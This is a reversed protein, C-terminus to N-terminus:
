GNWDQWKLLGQDLMIALYANLDTQADDYSVEYELTIVRTIENITRQGDILAWVRAGVDNLVKVDGEQPNIIVTGDDLSRWILDTTKEPIM